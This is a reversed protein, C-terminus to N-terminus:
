NAIEFSQQVNNEHLHEEHSQDTSNYNRPLLDSQSGNM